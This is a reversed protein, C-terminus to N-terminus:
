TFRLLMTTYPLLTIEGPVDAETLRYPDVLKPVGKAATQARFTVPQMGENTLVYYHM